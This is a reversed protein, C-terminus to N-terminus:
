GGWARARDRPETLGKAPEDGPASFIMLLDVAGFGAERVLRWQGDPPPITPPDTPETADAYREPFLIQSTDTPPDAYAGNVAEWGGEAFLSCVFSMGELYPLQAGHSLVYPFDGSERQADLIRPDFIMGFQEDLGIAGMSFQQMGLTADGEILAQYARAQEPDRRPDSVLDSFGLRSDTLAHIMEHALTLQDVAPLPEHSSGTAVVLDGTEPDYYGAVGTDLLDIQAALLDYGAPIMGLAVLLRTDYEAVDAPYSEEVLARVRRGMEDFSVFVPQVTTPFTLERLAEVASSIDEVQTDLSDDDVVYSGPATTLCSGLGTSPALEGLLGELGDLGQLGKLQEGLLGLLENIDFGGGDDGLLGRLLEALGGDPASAALEQELSDIRDRADALDSQLDGIRDNLQGVRIAAFIAGAGLLLVVVGLAIAVVIASTPWRSPPAPQM